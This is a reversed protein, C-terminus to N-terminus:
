GVPVPLTGARQRKWSPQPADLSTASEDEEYAPPTDTNPNTNLICGGQRRYLQSMDAQDPDPLLIGDKCANGFQQWHVVSIRSNLVDIALAPRAALWEASALLQKDAETELGSSQKPGAVDGQQKLVLRLHVTYADEGAHAALSAIREPSIFIYLHQWENKPSQLSIDTRLKLFGTNARPAFSASIRWSSTADLSRRGENDLGQVTAPELRALLM